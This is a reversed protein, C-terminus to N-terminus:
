IKEWIVEIREGTVTDVWAVNYTLGNEDLDNSKRSDCKHGLINSHEFLWNTVESRNVNNM